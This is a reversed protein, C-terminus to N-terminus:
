VTRAVPDAQAREFLLDVHRIRGDRDLPASLIERVSFGQAQLMNVIEEFAYSDEFRRLVSTETIVYDIHDLLGTAGKLVELEYGETDIKLLAPRMIADAKLVSDLRKQPVTVVPFEQMDPNTLKTRALLSSKEGNVNLEVADINEAGLALRHLVADRRNLIKKEIGPYYEPNCEFLELRADSFHRYLTPTGHAVGIDIVLRMAPLEALGPFEDNAGRRQLQWGVVSLARNLVRVFLNVLKRM